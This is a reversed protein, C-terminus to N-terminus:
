LRLYPIPQLARCVKYDFYYEVSRICRLAILSYRGKELKVNLAGKIYYVVCAEKISELM